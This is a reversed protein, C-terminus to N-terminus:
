GYLWVKASNKTGGVCTVPKKSCAVNTYNKKDQPSYVKGLKVSKGGAKKAVYAKRINEAFGCTAKANVASYKPGSKLKHEVACAKKAGKPKAPRKTPTPSAKASPSATRTASAGPSGTLENRVLVAGGVVLGVAVVAVVLTRVRRSPGRGGVPHDQRRIRRVVRAQMRGAPTLAAGFIMGVLGSPQTVDPSRVMVRVPDTPTFTGSPRASDVRVTVADRGSPSRIEARHEPPGEPLGMPVLEYSWTRGGSGTAAHLAVPLWETVEPQDGTLLVRTGSEVRRAMLRGVILVVLIAAVVVALGAGLYGM